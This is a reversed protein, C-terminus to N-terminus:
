RSYWLHLVCEEARMLRLETYLRHNMAEREADKLARRATHEDLALCLVTWDTKDPRTHAIEAVFREVRWM